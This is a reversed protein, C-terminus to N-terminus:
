RECTRCVICKPTELFLHVQFHITFITSFGVLISSKPAFGRNKSIGVEKPKWCMDLSLSPHVGLTRTSGHYKHATRPHSEQPYSVWLYGSDGSFTLIYNGLFYRGYIDPYWEDEWRRKKWLLVFFCFTPIAAKSFWPKVCFIMPFFDHSKRSSFQGGSCSRSLLIRGQRKAM